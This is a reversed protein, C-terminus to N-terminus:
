KAIIVKANIAREGTSKSLGGGKFVSSACGNDGELVGHGHSETPVDGRADNWRAM